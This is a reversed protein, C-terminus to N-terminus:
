GARDVRRTFPQPGRLRLGILAPVLAYPLYVLLLLGPRPPPHEGFFEMWLHVVMSYLM